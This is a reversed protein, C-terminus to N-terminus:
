EAYIDCASWGMGLMEGSDGDKINARLMALATGKEISREFTHTLAALDFQGAPIEANMSKYQKATGLSLSLEVLVQITAPRKNVGTLRVICPFKQLQGGLLIPPPCTTRLEVTLAIHAPLKPKGM